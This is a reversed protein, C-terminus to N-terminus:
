GGTLVGAKGEADPTSESDTQYTELEIDHVPAVGLVPTEGSLQEDIKCTLNMQGTLVVLAGREIPDDKNINGIWRSGVESTWGLDINEANMVINYVVDAFEDFSADALETSEQLAALAATLAAPSSAPNQMVTLDVNSPSSLALDLSFTMEHTVSGVISGASKPFDGSRYYVQVSRNLDKIETAGQGQEQYGIVRFQGAAAAGLMTVISAKILRFNMTM